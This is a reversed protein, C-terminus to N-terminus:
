SFIINNLQIYNYHLKFQFGYVKREVIDVYGRRGGGGGGEGWRVESDKREADTQGLKGERGKERGGIGM